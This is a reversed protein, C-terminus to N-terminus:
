IRVHNGIKFKPDKDNVEEKFDIHTNNKVDVPKMKISTHYTNKKKKLLIM